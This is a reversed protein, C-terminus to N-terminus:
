IANKRERMFVRTLELVCVRDMAFATDYVGREFVSKSMKSM